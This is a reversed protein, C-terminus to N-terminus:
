FVIGTEIVGRLQTKETGNKGFASTSDFAHVVSGEGRLFWVGTQYTPTVTLSGASSGSGYLVNGPGTSAIYEARGAISISDTVKYKALVAGGYTQASAIDLRASSPVDTYQFYPTVTWPEANYTYILNIIRSNNQAPLTVFTSKATERFAGGGAVAITNEKDLTYSVLGSIWNYNNSYLGDNLSLSVTLPGSAYNGQIGRSIIPEQNWLLGREINMNQFTFAYEAGILTPLKGFQLSLEDTAVLKGYAVPVPGFTNGTIKPLHFYQTGLTPFSYGGAMAFFQFPGENNQLWVLANPVDGTATSNDPVPNSQFLGMATIAGGFYVSGLPFGTDFAFPSPNASLPGTLAPSTLSITPAEEAKPPNVGPPAVLNPEPVIAQALAAPAAGVQWSAAALLSAVGITLRTRSIRTM